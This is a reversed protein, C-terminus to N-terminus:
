ANQSRVLEQYVQWTDVDTLIATDKIEFEQLQDKYRKFLVRAGTDQTLMELEPFLSRHIVVPNGRKGDCTPILILPTTKSFEDILQNITNSTVLPQDGLLFMAASCKQSIAQIGQILSTSMGHEHNQNIVVNIGSFDVAEKVESASHGLVATFEHLNSARAQRIVEGLLTSNKFPLIQKLRGMRSASGAALIIGAIKM